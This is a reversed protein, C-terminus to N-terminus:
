AAVRRTAARGAMKWLRQAFAACRLYSWLRAADGARRGVAVSASSHTKVRSGDARDVVWAVSSLQLPVILLMFVVATIWIRHMWVADWRCLGALASAIAALLAAQVIITLGVVLSPQQALYSEVALWSSTGM